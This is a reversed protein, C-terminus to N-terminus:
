NLTINVPVESKTVYSGAAFELNGKDPNAGQLEGDEWGIYKFVLQLNGGSLGSKMDGKKSMILIQSDDKSHIIKYNNNPDNKVVLTQDLNAQPTRPNNFPEPNRILVGIIKNGDATNKILNFETGAAAEMPPINFLGEVIRDFPHPYRSSLESGTDEDSKSAIALAKNIRTSDSVPISLDFVANKTNGKDDKLIYSEVQKRFNMYRSTQFTYRHVEKNDTEENLASTREGRANYFLATYLKQPKLNFPISRFKSSRQHIPSGLNLDCSVDPNQSMSNLLDYAATIRSHYDPMFGCQCVPVTDNISNEDLPYKINVDSVPDKIKINMAFKPGKLLKSDEPYDPWDALMRDTYPKTFFLDLTCEQEGYFSPKALVLDGDANPYSRIYDIYQDLKNLNEAREQTLANGGTAANDKEIYGLTDATQFGYYYNFKGGDANGNVRDQLTFHIYYKTNPRWIVQGMYQITEQLQKQQGQISEQSPISDNYKQIEESIYKMEHFYTAIWSPDNNLDVGCNGWEYLVQMIQYAIENINKYTSLALPQDNSTSNFYSTERVYNTYHEGLIDSLGEISSNQIKNIFNNVRTRHLQTIRNTESPYVTVLEKFLNCRESNQCSVDTYESSATMLRRLEDMYGSFRIVRRPIVVQANRGSSAYTEAYLRSILTKLRNIATINPAMPEIIIRRIPRKANKYSVVDKLQASSLELVSVNAYQLYSKGSVAIGEQFYIKVNRSYTSLKLEAEVTDSVFDIQLKNFSSFQLSREKKFVNSTQVVQLTNVPNRETSHINQNKNSEPISLLIGKIYHPSADSNYLKMGVPRDEVHVVRAKLAPQQCFLYSATIGQQEAIFNKAPISDTFSFPTDGLLRITDNQDSARQWYGVVLNDEAPKKDDDLLPLFIKFPHYDIWQGPTTSDAEKYAKIELYELSYEHKVQRKGEPPINEWWNTDGGGTLNGLQYKVDSADAPIAAEGALPQTRLGKTSKIDIYTDVPIVPLVLDGTAPAGSLEKLEYAENTLMHVGKVYQSAEEVPIPAIPDKILEKDKEWKIDVTIDFGIKFCILKLQGHVRLSAGVLFPKPVEVSLSTDLGFGVYIIKWVNVEIGGGLSLSGGIQPREFSIKGTLEAYAYIRVKIGFFSKDFNFDVRAGAEIGKASLMLYAAGRLDIVGPFLTATIPKEKTGANIYWGKGNKRPFYAHIEADVTLIQWSGKEPLKLNVGVGMEISDTAWILMAFFPPDDDNPNTTMKTSSLIRAKGEIMFMDPITLLLMVRASIIKGSDASTGIVAGAGLAVPKDTRGTQGPGAFKDQNIGVPSKKYYDYWTEEPNAKHPVYRLGFLGNFGFIGVPGIPIPAPLDVGVEVIFAPYDPELTMRAHVGFNLKPLTMSIEGKYVKSSQDNKPDPMSLAGKILAMATEKSATGPIILDIALTQIQFYDDTECFCYKIGNGRVDFGMSGAAVQADFGIYKYKKTETEAPNKDDKGQYSGFEINTVNLEVPGVKLSIAKPLPVSGGRLEFSGDSYIRLDDLQFTQGEMIKDMTSGPVFGIECSVGLYFKSQETEVDNEIKIFTERGLSLGKFTFNLKNFLTAELGNPVSATLSFDGNETIHGKIAVTIEKDPNSKDKFGPITMSGEIESGVIANKRFTIGFKNFKVKFGSDGLETEFNNAELSVNGSFGGTGILMEKGKLSIQANPFWSKPLGIEANGVYVGVFDNDYGAATAEPINRDKSLDLKLDNFAITFGTNGIQSKQFSFDLAKDFDFGTKSSFHLAGVNFTLQSKVNENEIINGNADLPILWNRPFELALRIDQISVYISPIFIDKLSELDFNRVAEKFLNEINALSEKLDSTFIYDSFIIDFIDFSNGNSQMQELIDEIPNGTELSNITIPTTPNHKQNFDRVFVEIGQLGNSETPYVHMDEELPFLSILSRLLDGSSLGTIDTLLNFFSKPSYDFSDNDFKPLYKLIGKSFSFFVPFETIGTASSESNARPPNLSLTMGSGFLDFGLRKAYILKLSYLTGEQMDSLGSQYDAVYLGAMLDELSENITSLIPPIDSTAILQNLPILNEEM